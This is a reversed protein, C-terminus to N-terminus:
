IISKCQACEGLQVDVDDIAMDSLVGGAVGEFLLIYYQGSAVLPLTVQAQKWEDGQDGALEWLRVMSSIGADYLQHLRLTGMERGHMHYWFTMCAVQQNMIRHTAYWASKGAIEGTTRASSAPM